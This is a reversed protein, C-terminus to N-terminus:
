ADDGDESMYDDMTVRSIVDDLEVELAHEKALGNAGVMEDALQGDAQLAGLEEPLLMDFIHTVASGIEPFWFSNRIESGLTSSDGEVIENSIQLIMSIAKVKEGFPADPTVSDKVMEVIERIDETASGANDYKKSGSSSSYRSYVDQLQNLADEPDYGPM